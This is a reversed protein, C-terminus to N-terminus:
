DLYEPFAPLRYVHQPEHQIIFLADNDKVISELKASSSRTQTGNGSVQVDYNFSPVGDNIRNESFHYQDGSLVVSGANELNVLLGMHGITHGPLSIIHVRGDDFVDTDGDLVRIQDPHDIFYSYNDVALHSAKAEDPKDKILHYEPKQILLEANKFLSINGSHDGHGHSLGVHTIDSPKLGIQELQQTLPTSVSMIFNESKGAEPNEILSESLGTDWLLNFAGNQILYCSAVFDKKQGEYHNDISFINLDLVQVKGCDLRYLKLHEPEEAFAPRCFSVIFVFLLLTRM